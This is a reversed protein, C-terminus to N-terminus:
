PYILDRAVSGTKANDARYGMTVSAVEAPRRGSENKDLIRRRQDKWFDVFQEDGYVLHAFLSASFEAFGESMWQDRYSKWGLVHGWWQHAVEHPAVIKFFDAARSLWISNRTTSDFYATIPMYVLMPLAQGYYAFPQQTMALRGYPLPGFYNQYIGMALQEENRAKDM